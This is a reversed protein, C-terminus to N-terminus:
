QSTVDVPSYAPDPMRFELCQIHLIFM